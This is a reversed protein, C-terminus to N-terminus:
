TSTPQDAKKAVRRKTKKLCYKIHIAPLIIGSAFVIRVKSGGELFWQRYGMPVTEDSGGAIGTWDDVLACGEVIAEDGSGM